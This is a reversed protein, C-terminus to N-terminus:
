GGIAVMHKRPAGAGSCTFAHGEQKRAVAARVRVELEADDAGTRLVGRLDSEDGEEPDVALCTHLQGTATLRVRNCTACFPESVASIIGVRQGGGIGGGTDGGSDGTTRHYRAPGVGALDRADDPALPGFAAEIRRRIAAAPFFEGPSFLAGDSMPMFEIFRPVLGEDWAFRCLPVIDDDNVGGMVVANVKTGSFGAARVAQLGALVAALDGRRTIARFKHPDFTDTSVSSGCLNRAM